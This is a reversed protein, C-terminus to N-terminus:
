EARTGLSLITISQWGNPTISRDAARNVIKYYELEKRLEANEKQLVEIRQLAAELTTIKEM